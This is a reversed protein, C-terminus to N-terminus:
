HRRHSWWAVHAVAYVFVLLVALVIFLVNAQFSLARDSTDILGGLDTGILGFTGAIIAATAVLAILGGGWLAWAHGRLTAWGLAIFPIYFLVICTVVHNTLDAPRAARFYGAKLLGLGISAWVLLATGLFISVLGAQRVRERQRSWLVLRHFQGYTRAQIPEGALYRELDEALAEATAYRQKPDKELSKRCITALDRDVRRNVDGPSAPTQERVQALIADLSDGEFPPKGTLLAYLIAGLGYVDTATTVADRRGDAQEPAMYAPTGLLVGSLTAEWGAGLRKAVGFDAIYPRGETDLLINSPKLDRHLVGRQHAHHLARAVQAILTAAGRPDDTFRCMQEAVSGGDILRMSFYSHGEHEGIEYIPVIQPHDLSAVAEAEARFRRQHEPSAWAGALIMKLAVLRGLTRHRARFVIGMGGRGIEDLLEYEGIRRNRGAAGDVTYTPDIEADSLTTQEDPPRRGRGLIELCARLKEAIDPHESLLREMDPPAGAELRAFYAELVRAVALDTDASDRSSPDGQNM